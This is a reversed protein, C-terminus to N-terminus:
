NKFINNEFGWPVHTSQMNGPNLDSSPQSKETNLDNASFDWDLLSKFGPLMCGISIKLLYLYYSGAKVPRAKEVHGYHSLSAPIDGALLSRQLVILM